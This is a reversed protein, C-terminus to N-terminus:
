AVRATVLKQAAAIEIETRAQFYRARADKAGFHRVEEFGHRGLLEDMEHPTFLSVFPEGWETAISRMASTIEVARQDLIADPQNYTLVVRTGGASQAMMALTADIAALSLYMTVGIWSYVAPCAFDFGATELGERLTQHEFDVAVYILNAPVALGLEGLRNKKWSQTSPHDVEFVRVRDGLDRRREAFTDLGAGLVVYQGVGRSVEDDVVDEALRARVCMWRSFALLNPGPIETLLREKLENGQEGAIRLALYDDLVWPPSESRHLDRAVATLVATRSPGAGHDDM